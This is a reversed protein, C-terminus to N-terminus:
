TADSAGGPVDAHLQLALAVCGGVIAMDSFDSRDTSGFVQPYDRRLRLDTADMVVRWLTPADAAKEELWEPVASPSSAVPKEKAGDHMRRVADAMGRMTAEDGFFDAALGLNRHLFESALPVLGPGILMGASPSGTVAIAIDESFRVLQEGIPKSKLDTYYGVARKWAETVERNTLGACLTTTFRSMESPPVYKNAHALSLVHVAQFASATAAPALLDRASAHAAGMIAEADRCEVSVAELWKIRQRNLREALATPRRAPNDRGGFVNSFWSV